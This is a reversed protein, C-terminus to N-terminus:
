VGLQRRCIRAFRSAISCFRCAAWAAASGASGTADVELAGAGRGIAEGAGTVLFDRGDGGAEGATEIALPAAGLGRTGVPGGCGLSENASKSCASMVLTKPTVSLTRRPLRDSRFQRHCRSAASADPPSRM